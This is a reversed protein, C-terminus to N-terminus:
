ASGRAPTTRAPTRRTGAAKKGGARSTSPRTRLAQSLVQSVDDVFIFELDKRLEAPIDGLSRRNPAPLLVAHKGARRAAQVKVKIGGVALVDGRLTIEGTMALDHRIPRETLASVLAAAMTIGASPGDKPIAGEPVHIHIDQRSFMEDSLGLELARARASSLAARASEKMVDGLHGTLILNGRGPMTSAEVYLIEGGSATWARGVAVGVRDENRTEARAVRPEGLLKEVQPEGVRTCGRKGAAVLRAVKRCVSSIERELNRLGAERTYETILKRVAPDSIAIKRPTLGNEPVQRPILHQRAIEVKEEETYGSLWIVELRDRFAPQIPEILNATALFM